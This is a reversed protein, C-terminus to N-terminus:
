PKIAPANKVLPKGWKTEPTLPSLCMVGSALSELASVLTTHAYTLKTIPPQIKLMDPPFKLVIKEKSVYEIAKQAPDNTIAADHAQSKEFGFAPKGQNM